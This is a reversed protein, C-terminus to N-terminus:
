RGKILLQTMAILGFVNTSFMNEINKPDITGVRDIGVVFGANNVTFLRTDHHAWLCTM